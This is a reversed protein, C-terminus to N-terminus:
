PLQRRTSPFDRQESPVGESEARQRAYCAGESRIRERDRAVVQALNDREAEVVKTKLREAELESQLERVQKQLSCTAYRKLFNFM